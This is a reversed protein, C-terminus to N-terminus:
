ESDYDVPVDSRNGCFRFLRVFALGEGTHVYHVPHILHGTKNQKLCGVIVSTM